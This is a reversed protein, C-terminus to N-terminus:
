KSSRGSKNGIQLGLSFFSLLTVSLLIGGIIDTFWHAGSFFRGLVLLIAASASLARLVDSLCRNKIYKPILLFASGFAICALITHSSPFSPEPGAEGPLVFPRYNIIVKEFFVYLFLVIAYLIALLFLHRDVARFSHRRILQYCGLYAFAICVLLALIGFAETVMYVTPHFGILDRVISNLHSLGIQTGEPGIPAVDFTLLLFILILFLLFTVVIFIGQKKVNM